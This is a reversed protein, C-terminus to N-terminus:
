FYSLVFSLKTYCVNSQLDLYSLSDSPIVQCPQHIGLFLNLMMEPDILINGSSSIMKVPLGLLSNIESIPTLTMWHMLTQILCFLLLAVGIRHRLLATLICLVPVGVRLDGSKCLPKGGDAGLNLSQQVMQNEAQVYCLLLYKPKWVWM